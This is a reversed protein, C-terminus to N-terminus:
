RKRYLATGLCAGSGREQDDRYQRQHRQRLHAATSGEENSWSASTISFTQAAAAGAWGLLALLATGTYLTRLAGKTM